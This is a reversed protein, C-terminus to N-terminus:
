SWIVILFFSFSYPGVWALIQALEFIGEEQCGYQCVELLFLTLCLYLAM